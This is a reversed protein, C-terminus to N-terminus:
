EDDRRGFWYGIAAGMLAAGLLLPIASAVEKERFAALEAHTTLYVEPSLYAGGTVEIAEGDPTHLTGTAVEILSSHM